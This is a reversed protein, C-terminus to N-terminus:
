RVQGLRDQMLAHMESVTVFLVGDAALRPIERALVRATAPHPHGIGVAFGTSRASRVLTNLNAKIKTEDQSDYDLFIRNKLAPIGQELALDYAVSRASTLSDLFLLGRDRLVAMLNKMTAPDSTAASGMHNNVGTVRDLASLAKDLRAEIEARGLGVMIAGTGPDTEPYGQPEMPLHLLIERRREHVRIGASAVSVEVFCGAMRRERRGSATSQRADAAVDLRDPPLVLDTKALAYERSYPLGPLVAMTLPVPLNFLQRTAETKGYGWDDIVLAVVPRDGHAQLRSWALLEPGDGWRIRPDPGERFLVLTHTPRGPVGLDLRLYDSGEDPQGGRGSAEARYLRQGWLIRAGFPELATAVRLELERYPIDGPVPLARCRVHAGDGLGPAPWDYDDPHANGAATGVAGPVFGPFVQGLAQEVGAQVEAYMKQSGMSLLTAQGTRTGSWKVVGVGAILIVLALGLSWTLFAPRGAPKSPRNGAGGTKRAAPSKKPSRSKKRGNFLGGLNM